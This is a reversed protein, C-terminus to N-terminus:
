PILPPQMNRKAKQKLNQYNKLYEREITSSSLDKINEESLWKEIDDALSQKKIQPCNKLIEEAKKTIKEQLDITSARHIRESPTHEKPNNDLLPKSINKINEKENFNGFFGYRQGLKILDKSKIRTNTLNNSRILENFEGTNIFIDEIMNKSNLPKKYNILDMNYFQPLSLTLVDLGLLLFLAENFSLTIDDTLLSKCHEMAYKSNEPIMFGRRFSYGNNDFWIEIGFVLFATRQYKVLRNDDIYDFHVLGFKHEKDVSCNHNTLM